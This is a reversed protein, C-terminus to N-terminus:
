PQIGRILLISRSRSRETKSCCKLALAKTHLNPMWVRLLSRIERLQFDNPGFARVEVRLLAPTQNIRNRRPPHIKMSMRVGGDCLGDGNLGTLQLVHDERTKRM